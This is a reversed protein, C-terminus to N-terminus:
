FRGAAAASVLNGMGSAPLANTRHATLGLRQMRSILSTRPLGLRAAAGSKGSVVGNTERLTEVIHAREADALTRVATAAPQLFLEKIRPRLVEGTTVVM